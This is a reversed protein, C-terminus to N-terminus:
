PGTRKTQKSMFFDALSYTQTCVEAAARSLPLYPEFELNVFGKNSQEGFRKSRSDGPDNDRYRHWHWGICGPHEVLGLTFNQFFTGRDAQTKVTWGAGSINNMGTDMGKAYFETILFPRGTSAWLDMAERAPTWTGYWNFSIVDVYPACARVATEEKLARGHFRCGLYLHNPDHKRIAAAVASFYRQAVYARFAVRDTETEQRPLKGGYRAALWREAERRNIDEPPLSRYRKLMDGGYIPLENDSFHGLLWPDDRTAALASAHEDCFAEFDPDLVPLCNGLFGTHGVKEHTRGKKRGFTSAFNWRLTYVVPRDLSRFLEEGSWCGLTNLGVSRYWDATHRAWGEADGFRKIM